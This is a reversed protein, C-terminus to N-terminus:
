SPATITTSAFAEHSLNDFGADLVAIVIGEGHFGLEHVAPVSIQAVQGQSPGYDYAPTDHPPTDDVHKKYAQRRPKWFSPLSRSAADSGASSSSGNSSPCPPSRM